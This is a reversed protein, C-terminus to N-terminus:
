ATARTTASCCTRTSSASCMSCRLTSTTSPDHDKLHPMMLVMQGKRVQQGSNWTRLRKRAFGMKSATGWRSIESFANSFADPSALALAGPGKNSCATCRGSSPWWTTDSGAGILWSLRSSIAKRSARNEQEIRLLTSLFDDQVPATRREAIVLKLIDIAPQQGPAGRAVSMRLHHPESDRHVSSSGSSTRGTNKRHGGHPYDIYLFHAAIRDIYDFTEPEGLEDFLKECGARDQAPHCGGRQLLVGAGSGACWPSPSRSGGAPQVIM